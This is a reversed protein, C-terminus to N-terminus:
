TNYGLDFINSNDIENNEKDIANIDFKLCDLIFDAFQDKFHTGNSPNNLKRNIAGTFLDVAQIYDNNKSSVANFDGIYLGKIKQGKLREKINEIKLQDSGKEEEDIWVQIKRPLTARGSSNEHEIGKSILHYTLDTIATNIDLGKKNVVILKFGVQPNLSLFKIFFDKYRQMRHQNVESFHFEYNVDNQKKWENMELVSNVNSIGYKVVWLSGVSLYNQNKGTEDIYVSYLGINDPKDEIADSEFNSELKGRYKKVEPDAQFLGYTNQIKARTRSLTNIKTLSMMQNMSINNGDFKESEFSKWYKWALSIDSNRCENSTNLIFAVRDKIDLINGSIVRNLLETKESEIQELKSNKNEEDEHGNSTEDTM